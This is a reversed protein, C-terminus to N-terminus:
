GRFDRGYKQEQYHKIADRLGAQDEIKNELAYVVTSDITNRALIRHIIVRDNTQGPRRLRANLQLWGELNYDCGFWVVQHGGYQLNLGHGASQPSTILGDYLGQNWEQIIQVAETDSVGPGLYALRFRKEYRKLIRELDPRFLYSILVGSGGAEELVEELAELKAEHVPLLTERDEHHRVIGNAMQRCKATLAGANFVELPVGDLETLMEQELEDYAAQAKPPLDVSIDNVVYPPLELYDDVEMSVTIDAIREEIQEKAGDRLWTRRKIPDETFYQRKYDTLLTGLRRGGDVALYQGFLDIYGNPAPTGTLGIRRTFYDLLCVGETKAHWPGIRAGTPHKVRTVEDFIITDFPPYRGQHLFTTVLQNYLWPLSEYNIVWM